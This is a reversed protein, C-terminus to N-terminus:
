GHANKSSMELAADSAFSVPFCGIFVDVVGM